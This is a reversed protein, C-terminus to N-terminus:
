EGEDHGGLHQHVNRPREGLLVHGMQQVLQLAHDGAVEGQVGNLQGLLQGGCRVVSGGDAAAAHHSLGEAKVTGVAASATPPQKTQEKQLPGKM